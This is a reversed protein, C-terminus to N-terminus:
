YARHGRRAASIAADAWLCVVALLVGGAAFQGGRLLHDHRRLGGPQCHRFPEGERRHGPGGAHAFRGARTGFRYGALIAAAALVGFALGAGIGRMRGERGSKPPSVAGRWFLLWPLPLAVIALKGVTYATQQALPPWDRLAVFYLWTVLAPLVAGALAARSQPM